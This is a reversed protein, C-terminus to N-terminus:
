EELMDDLFSHLWKAASLKGRSIKPLCVDVLSCASCNRGERPTPLSRERFIERIAMTTEMVLTRLEEDMPVAVRRHTEGYFLYGCEIRVQFMEELCIGQACLQVEDARHLKPQGRKYEVPVPQWWGPLGAIHAARTVGKDDTPGQWRHFEVMDAIGTLGLALSRINLATALHLGKRTEKRGSDVRVHMQRGSVTLYNERWQGEVHILACQRPCFLFHQLASIPLLDDESFAM